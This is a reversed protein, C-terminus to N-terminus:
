WQIKEGNEMMQYRGDMRLLVGSSGRGEGWTIALVSDM